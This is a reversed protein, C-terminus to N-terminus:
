TPDRFLLLAAHPCGRRAHSSQATPAHSSSRMRPPRRLGDASTTEGFRKVLTGVTPSPGANEMGLLTLMDFGSYRVRVIFNSHFLQCYLAKREIGQEAMGSCGHFPTARRRM